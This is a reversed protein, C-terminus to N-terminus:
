AGTRDARYKTRSFGSPFMVSNTTKIGVGIQVRTRHETRAAASSTERGNKVRTIKCRAAAVWPLVRNRPDDAVYTRVVCCSTDSERGASSVPVTKFIDISKVWVLTCTPRVRTEVNPRGNRSSIVYSSLHESVRTSRKFRDNEERGPGPRWFSLCFFFFRQAHRTRRATQRRKARKASPSCM